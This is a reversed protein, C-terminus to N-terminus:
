NIDWGTKKLTDELAKEVINRSELEDQTNKYVERKGPNPEYQYYGNEIISDLREGYDEGVAKAENTLTYELSGRKIDLSSEWMDEDGFGGDKDYRRIYYNPSYSNYAEDVKERYVEKIEKDVTALMATSIEDQLDNLLQNLDDYDKKAM